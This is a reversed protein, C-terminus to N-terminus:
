TSKQKSRREVLWAARGAILIFIIFDTTFAMTASSACKITWALGAAIVSIDGREVRGLAAQWVPVYLLAIVIAVLPIGAIVATDIYGSDIHFQDQIDYGGGFPFVDWLNNRLFAVATAMQDSRSDEYLRGLLQEYSGSITSTYSAPFLQMAAYITVAGLVASFMIKFNFGRHSRMYIVLFALGNVFLVIFTLRTQIIVAMIFAIPLPFYKIYKWFKGDRGDEFLFMLFLLELVVSPAWLWKWAVLRVIRGMNYTEVINIFGVAFLIIAFLLLYKFVRRCIAWYEPNYTTFFLSIGLMTGPALIMSAASLSTLYKSPDETMLLLFPIYAIAMVYLFMKRNRLISKANLLLLGSVSLYQLANVVTWLGSQTEITLDTKSYTYGRSVIEEVNGFRLFTHSAWLLTFSCFLLTFLLLFVVRGKRTSKPMVVMM